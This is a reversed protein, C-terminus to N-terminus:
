YEEKQYHQNNFPGGTNSGSILGGQQYNGQNCGFPGGSQGGSILGETAGTVVPGEISSGRFPGGNNSGSILGGQQYGQYNKTKFPGGTNSGSVLGVQQHNGQNCGSAERSRGGSPYGQSYTPDGVAWTSGVLLLIGALIRRM